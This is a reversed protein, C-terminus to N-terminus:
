LLAKKLEEYLGTFDCAKNCNGKFISCNLNEVNRIAEICGVKNKVTKYVESVKGNSNDLAICPTGALVSFIMGHLRDTIVGSCRSFERIKEELVARRSCNDTYAQHPASLTSIDNVMFGNERCIEYIKKESVENIVSEKDHRMCIGIIRERNTPQLNLKGYLYFVIDPVFIVNPYLQAMMRYSKMERACVVLNKHRSYIMSSKKKEKKGYRDDTYDITQPFVVIKNDPFNRIVKRRLSEYRPYLDGMNGGGSLIIVDERQIQKKLSTFYMLLEKESVVFLNEEGFMDGMFRCMAYTIAQDGLNNYSAADLFFYRRNATSPQIYFDKQFICERLNRIVLNIEMPLIRKLQM